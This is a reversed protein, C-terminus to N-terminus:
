RYLITGEWEEFSPKLTNWAYEFAEKVKEEGVADLFRRQLEKKQEPYSLVRYSYDDTIREKLSRWSKAKFPRQMVDAIFWKAEKVETDFSIILYVSTNEENRYIPTKIRIQM